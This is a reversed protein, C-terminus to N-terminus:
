SRSKRALKDTMTEYCSNCIGHTFHPPRDREFLKLKTMANEIERWDSVGVDIRKCWGCIRLFEEGGSARLDLPAPPEREHRGLAKTEFQIEGNQLPTINMELLRRCDASDCRISFSITDGNRVRQLVVEYLRRTLDDAIFDWLSKHLVNETKFNAAGNDFSFRLWDDNVFIIEDQRNIRYM